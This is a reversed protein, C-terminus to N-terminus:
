GNLDREVNRVNLILKVLNESTIEFFKYLDKYPASAGFSNMGIFNKENVFKSWGMPSAAEIAYCDKNGLVEIKYKEDQKEFLEWSPM